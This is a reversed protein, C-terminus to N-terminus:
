QQKLKGIDRICRVSIAEQKEGDKHRNMLGGNKGFNYFWATSTDTETASWFFGHAELRAYTSDNFDRGGGFIVDFEASGGKILAKYAAKGGDDSDDRVGGYHKAMQQWEENAPLRWGEGLLKCGEQASEWTYLRGYQNCNQEANGYCFSGPINIKLNDTMWEKSDPMIRITYNNGDRDQLIGSQEQGNAEHYISLFFLVVALIIPHINVGHKMCNM